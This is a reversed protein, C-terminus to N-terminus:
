RFLMKQWEQGAVSYFFNQTKLFPHVCVCTSSLISPLM